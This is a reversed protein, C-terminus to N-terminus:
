DVQRTSLTFSGSTFNFDVGNRMNLQDDLPSGRVIVVYQQGLMAGNFMAVLKIGNLYINSDDGYEQWQSQSPNLLFEKTGAQNRPDESARIVLTIVMSYPGANTFLKRGAM